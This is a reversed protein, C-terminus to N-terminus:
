ERGTLLDVVHCGRVHPGCPQWGDVCESCDARGSATTKGGEGAHAMAQQATRLLARFPLCTLCRKFGRLHLLMDTSDCGMLELEDALLSLRFTDLTGDPQREDYAAQALSLVTPTLLPSPGYGQGKCSPCRKRPELGVVQGGPGAIVTGVGRCRKCPKGPPCTTPRHPNGLICRLLEAQPRGEVDMRSAAMGRAAALADPLFPVFDTGSDTAPRPRDDPLPQGEALLEALEAILMQGLGASRKFRKARLRWAACAFLRLKRNSPSVLFRWAQRGGRNLRIAELMAESDDSAMWEAETM